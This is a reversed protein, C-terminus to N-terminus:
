YLFFCKEPKISYHAYNYLFFATPCQSKIDIKCKTIENILTHTDGTTEILIRGLNYKSEIRRCVAKFGTFFISDSNSINITGILEMCKIDCEVTCSSNRLIYCCVPRANDLLIYILIKSTLILETVSVLEINITCEYKPMSEKIIDKFYMFNKKNIKEINVRPEHYCLNHIDRLNYGITDYTTLPVIATMDGERKFLCVKVSPDQNRINYHHTQILQPAIGQKRNDKKVTLNDIYNVLLPSKDLFTIFIPRATIVALLPKDKHRIDRYISVFANSVNCSLYAFIDEESPSYNVMKSRLYNNCIFTACEKRISAPLQKNNYTHINVFNIYKNISPLEPNIIKDTFLWHNVDYLHFVPQIAWFKFKIRIYLYGIVIINVIFILLIQLM